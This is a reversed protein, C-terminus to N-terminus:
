HFSGTHPHCLGFVSVRMGLIRFGMVAAHKYKSMETAIKEHSAEPDYTKPGIKIDMVSPRVMQALVDGLRIYDMEYHADHHVGNFRPVFTRLRTRCRDEVGAAAAAADGDDDQFVERYFQLERESRRDCVPKLVDGSATHRLLGFKFKCQGFKHGAVQDHLLQTGPPLSLASSESAAAAAVAPSATDASSNTTTSMNASEFSSAATATGLINAGHFTPQESAGKIM